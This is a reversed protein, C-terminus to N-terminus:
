ISTMRGMRPPLAIKGLIPQLVQTGKKEPQLMELALPMKGLFPIHKKHDWPGPRVPLFSWLGRIFWYGSWFFDNDPFPNQQVPFSPLPCPFPDIGQSPSLSDSMTSLFWGGQKHPVEWLHCPRMILISLLCRLSLQCPSLGMSSSWALHLSTVM